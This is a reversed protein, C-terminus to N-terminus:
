GKNEVSRLLINHSLKRTILQYARAGFETWPISVEAHANLVRRPIKCSQHGQMIQHENQDHHNKLVTMHDTSDFHVNRILQIFGLNLNQLDRKM